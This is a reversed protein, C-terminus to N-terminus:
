DLVNNKFLVVCLRGWDQHWLIKIAMGWQLNQKFAHKEGGYDMTLLPDFSEQDVGKGM